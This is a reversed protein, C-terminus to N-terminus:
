VATITVYYTGYAGTRSYTGTPTCVDSGGKVYDIATGGGTTFRPSYYRWQSLFSIWQFYAGDDVGTPLAWLCLGGSESTFSEEYTGNASPLGTWTLSYTEVLPSVCAASYSCFSPANIGYLLKGTTPHALLKGVDPGPDWYAGPPYGDPRPIGAYAILKGNDVSM